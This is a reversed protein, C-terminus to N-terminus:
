AITGSVINLAGARVVDEGVHTVLQSRLTAAAHHLELIGQAVAQDHTAAGKNLHNAAHLSVEDIGSPVVHTAPATLAAAAALREALLDLEAAAALVVEPQVHVHGVM